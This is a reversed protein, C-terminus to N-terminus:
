ATAAVLRSPVALRELPLEVWRHFAAGAAVSVCWALLIGAAQVEPQAPAFHAFAANVILCVPFHVLFVAYSIRGLYAMTARLRSSLLSGRPAVALLLAVALAVAIRERYDLALAGLAPLLMAALLLAAGASRRPLRSLWWALVGLGYSGLFYVAWVDWAADRNFYLLSVAVGATVLVPALWRLPRDRSACSALWLLLTLLAYLQFDIAIYWLGASLSEYGLVDQLLLAHAAFQALTPAASISDHTM